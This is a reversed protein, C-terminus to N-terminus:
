TALVSAMYENPLDRLYKFCRSIRLKLIFNKTWEFRNEYEGTQQTPNQFLAKGAMLELDLATEYNSRNWEV